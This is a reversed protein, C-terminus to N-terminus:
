GASIFETAVTTVHGLITRLACTVVMRRGGRWNFGLWASTKGRRNELSEKGRPARHMPNELLFLVRAISGPGNTRHSKQPLQVYLLLLPSFPKRLTQM